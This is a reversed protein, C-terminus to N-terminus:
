PQQIEDHYVDLAPMNSDFGIAEGDDFNRGGWFNKANALDLANKITFGNQPLTYDSTSQAARAKLEVDAETGYAIRDINYPLPRIAAQFRM